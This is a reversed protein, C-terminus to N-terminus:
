LPATPLRLSLTRANIAADLTETSQPHGSVASVFVDRELSYLQVDSEATVTATRPVNRLLAIEGFFDGPDLTATRVGNSTVRLRGRGVVYFLDGPDGERIIETGALASSKELRVALQQLTAGDLPAFIAISRLLSLEEERPQPVADDVRDLPRRSLLALSPLIAGVAVLAGRTGLLEVILPTLIAGVAVFLVAMAELVGFVRGLIQGPTARQLLTLGSVDLVSNGIGVVVLALLAAAFEPLVGIAAIPLGWLALGLAVSPGLRERDVLSIAALAGLLGGVGLASNLFGVGSEGSDLLEISAVVILVNLFGRVLLQSGFLSMLLRQEPQGAAMSVGALLEDKVSSPGSVSPMQSVGAIGGIALAALLSCLTAVLFVVSSDGVAILVGAVAPGVFTAIGELLSYSVNGAVLERPTRALAPLLAWQAPRFATSGLAAVAAAVYVVINTGDAAIAVAAIAFSAARLLNMYLLVLQRPYRDVLASAFPVALAAPVMRVFGVIGVETVGGAEYAVVALAVVHAWEGVYFLFWSTQLRRLGPSRAIESLARFRAAILPSLKPRQM